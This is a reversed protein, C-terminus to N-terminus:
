NWKADTRIVIDFDLTESIAETTGNELTGQGTFIVTTGHRNYDLRYDLTFDNGYRNWMSHEFAWVTDNFITSQLALKPPTRFGLRNYPRFNIQPYRIGASTITSVHQEPHWYVYSWSMGLIALIIAFCALARVFNRRGRHAAEVEAPDLTAMMQSAFERPSGFAAVLASTDAGPNEQLFSEAM